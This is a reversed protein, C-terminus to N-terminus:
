DEAVRIFISINTKNAKAKVSVRDGNVQTTITVTTGNGDADSGDAKFYNVFDTTWEYKITANLATGFSQHEANYEGKAVDASVPELVLTSTDQAANATAIATNPNSGNFLGAVEAATLQRDYLYVEDLTDAFRQDGFQYNGIGRVDQDVTFGTVTGVLKGDIYYDIKGQSGVATIMRWIGDERTLSFGSSKHGGRFIGLQTSNWNVIVHHHGAGRFLTRWGDTDLGEYWASVTWNAGLPISPHTLKSTNATFAAAGQSLGANTHNVQSPILNFGNGTDDKGINNSDNFSYYAKAGTPITNNVTDDGGGTDNNVEGSSAAYLDAVEAATLLRDYLYVEDLTDAFRQDGFQYNGVCQVDQDVTFGNVTGVLQGDIYYDIKGPSGVATIMRWVGDERTLNKGSDRHGAMFIGLQTSNWNVIIHHHRAGRFLTRWGDTDLGEYWASVTWNAGLPISPHTLRSTNANFAAGGQSRGENTHNVLFPNLNFGNGSDDNGINNSDNFSYYAKFGAPITATVEGGSNDGGGNDGGGNDPIEIDGSSDRTFTNGYSEYVAVTSTGSGAIGTMIRNQKWNNIQGDYRNRMEQLKNIYIPNTALNNSEYPDADLDYLEEVPAQWWYTYKFNDSVVTFSTSDGGRTFTSMIALEDHGGTNPNEVLPMLSKGDMNQPIPIGAIDLFTPAFDINGTLRKSRKQLGANPSRPDYIMLPSRASEEFPLVKSGFGHVGNMFGNDSTYVIITNETLGYDELAQRIMGVAVDVGYIQQYYTAMVQDYNTDYGWKTFRGYQRGAKSQAPRHAGAERGFNVPKTFIKNAYVQDFRPDPTTPRHPAKFSLSLCFPKDQQASTKIFNRAWAAYALTSHPYKASYQALPGNDATTYSAQESMGAYDDFEGTGWGGNEIAFGFKGAFATRYGNARLINAYGKDWISEKMTEGHTFTTGHKYEYMGTFVNARSAMCLATTNYHRDFIVGDKGLKDMNPTIVDQNGYIGMSYFTQDDTMLFVINPTANPDIKPASIVSSDDLKRVRVFFLDLSPLDLALLNYKRTTSNGKAGPINEGLSDSWNVQDTSYDISYAQGETSNWTITATYTKQDYSYQHNIVEAQSTIALAIFLAIISLCLKYITPKTKM